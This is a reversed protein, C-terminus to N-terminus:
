HQVLLDPRKRKLRYQDAGSCVLAPALKRVCTSVVHQVAGHPAMNMQRVTDELELERM